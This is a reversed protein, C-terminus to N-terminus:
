EGELLEPNKYVNGIVEIENININSILYETLGNVVYFAGTKYKVVGYGDVVYSFGDTLTFKVIDGEYIEKSNKDFLGTSQMLVCNEFSIIDGYVDDDGEVTYDHYSYYVFGNTFDIAEALFMRTEGDAVKGFFRFKPIRM